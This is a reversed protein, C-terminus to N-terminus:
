VLQAAKGALSRCVIVKEATYLDPAAAASGTM